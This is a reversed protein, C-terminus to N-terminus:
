NHPAVSDREDRYLNLGVSNFPANVRDRVRAAAELIAAPASCPPPDLQFSSVLRPVDMEREYMVRREARWDVSARLEAFWAEATAADVFRPVYTVRGRHDGALVTEALDFLALQPM